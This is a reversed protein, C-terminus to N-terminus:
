IGGIPLKAALWVAEAVCECRAVKIKVMIYRLYTPVTQVDLNFVGGRFFTQM